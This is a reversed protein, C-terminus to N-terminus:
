RPRYVTTEGIRKLPIYRENLAGRLAETWRETYLGPYDMPQYISVLAFAGAEIEAALATDDWLGADALQKMEFPQFYVQRGTLPLLGMAEDALVVGDADVFVARLADQHAARDPIARLALKPLYREESLGILVVLQAALAVLLVVRWAWWARRLGVLAGVSLCLGASLEYLYNVDSGVKGITFAAALAGLTYPVVLAAARERRAVGLVLYLVAAGLLFPMFTVVETVARDILLRDFANVNATVVHVFFGGDSLAQM